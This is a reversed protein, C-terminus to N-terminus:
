WNIFTFPHPCFLNSRSSKTSTSPQESGEDNICPQNELCVLLCVFTRPWDREKQIMIKEGTIIYRCYTKQIIPILPWLFNIYWVGVHELAGYSVKCSVTVMIIRYLTINYIIYRSRPHSCFRGICLFHPHYYLIMYTGMMLHPCMWCGRNGRCNVRVSPDLFCVFM